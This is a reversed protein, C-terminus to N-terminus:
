AGARWWCTTARSGCTPPMASRHAAMALVVTILALAAGVVLAM